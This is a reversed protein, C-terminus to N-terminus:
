AVVHEAVALSSKGTQNTITSEQVRIIFDIAEFYPPLVDKHIGIDASPTVIIVCIGLSAIATDIENQIDYKKQHLVVLNDFYPDAQLRDVMVVQMVEFISDPAPM